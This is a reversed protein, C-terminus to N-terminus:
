NLMDLLGLFSMDTNVNDMPYTEFAGKSQADKQRWVKLTIKM